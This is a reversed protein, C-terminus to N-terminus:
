GDVAIVPNKFVHDIHVPVKVDGGFYVNSGIAIHATGLAKENLLTPGFFDGNPNIGIGFEGLRYVNRKEESREEAMKLTQLVKNAQTGKIDIVEGRSFVMQVPKKLVSTGKYHKVSGDVVVVGEAKSKRPAIYVEGVPLNGGAGFRQYEGSNKISDMKNIGIWLDTGKDTSVQLEKGKDLVSSIRKAKAQMNHYDVDILSIINQFQSTPLEQLGASTIYRHNYDLCFQKLSKYFPQVTGIGRYTCLFIISPDDLKSLERIIYKDAPEGRKRVTQVVFSADLGLRKAAFFVTAGLLTSASKGPKGFDTIVLVKEDGKVGLCQRFVNEVRYSSDDVINYQKRRKLYEVVEKYLM